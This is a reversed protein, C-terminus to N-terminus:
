VSSPKVNNATRENCGATKKEHDFIKQRDGESQAKRTPREIREDAQKQKASEQDEKCHVAKYAFLNFSPDEESSQLVMKLCVFSHLRDETTM